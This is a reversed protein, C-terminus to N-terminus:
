NLRKYEILNGYFNFTINKTKEDYKISVDNGKLNFEDQKTVVWDKGYFRFQYTNKTGELKRLSNSDSIGMSSSPNHTVKGWKDTYKIAKWQGVYKDSTSSNCSLIIISVLALFLHKM